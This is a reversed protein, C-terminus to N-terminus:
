HEQGQTLHTELVLKSESPMVQLRALVISASESILISLIISLIEFSVCINSIHHMMLLGAIVISDIIVELKASNTSDFLRRCLLIWQM